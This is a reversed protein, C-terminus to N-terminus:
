GRPDTGGQPSGCVRRVVNVVTTCASTGPTVLEFHGTEPLACLESQAAHAIWYIESHHPAVIRDLAGHVLTVRTRPAPMLVPSCAARSSLDDEAAGAVLPGAARKCPGRLTDVALDTFPALAVVHALKSADSAVSAYWLALHAGASHGLLVVRTLNIPFRAALAPLLALAAHVDDFTGPWGGGPDGVRRFEVNWSAISAARLSEAFLSLHGLDVAAEWCGGHLLVVLAFPGDGTPIRLDGFHQPGPGYSIREDAPPQPLALMDLPTMM